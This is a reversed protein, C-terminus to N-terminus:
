SRVLAYIALAALAMLSLTVAWAHDNVFSRIAHMALATPGRQRLTRFKELLFHRHSLLVNRGNNWDLALIDRHAADMGRVLLSNLPSRATAAVRYGPAGPEGIFPPLAKLAAAIADLRRALDADDSPKNLKRKPEGLWRAASNWAILVRRTEDVRRIVAELTGLGSRAAASERALHHILQSNAVANPAPLSKPIPKKGNSASVIPTPGSRRVPPPAAQWDLQTKRQVVTDSNTPPPPAAEDKPSAEMLHVFAQALRNMGETAEDPHSIQYCRLKALRKQVQTEICALDGEGPKIGLLTHADPPWAADTLDLWGRLLDANM